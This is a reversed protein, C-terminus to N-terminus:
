KNVTSTLFLRVVDMRFPFLTISKKLCHKVETDKRQSFFVKAQERYVRSMKRRYIWWGLPYRQLLNYRYQSLIEELAFAMTDNTSKSVNDEHVRYISLYEPIVGVKTRLSIRLFLDTDEGISSFREQFFGADLVLQKRCMTMSPYLYGHNFLKPFIDETYQRNRKPRMYENRHNIRGLYSYVMGYQSHSDLYHAMKELKDASFLDDQDLFAIYEGRARRIGVNRAASVGCNVQTIYVIRDRYENIVESSGDTSGDNIVIVEYDQANMTQTLASRITESIFRQGNYVPIIVSVKM